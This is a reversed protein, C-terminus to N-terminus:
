PRLLLPLHRQSFATARYSSPSLPHQSLSLHASRSHTGAFACVCQKDLSLRLSSPAWIRSSTLSSGSVQSQAPLFTSARANATSTRGQTPPSPTAPGSACAPDSLASLPLFLTSVSSLPRFPLPRSPSVRELFRAQDDDIIAAGGALWSAALPGHAVADLQGLGDSLKNSKGWRKGANPQAAVSKDYEYSGDKLGM